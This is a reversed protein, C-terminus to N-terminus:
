MGPATYTQPQRQAKHRQRQFCHRLWRRQSFCQIVSSFSQKLQWVKNLHRNSTAHAPTALATTPKVVRLTASAVNLTNLDVSLGSTGMGVVSGIPTNVFNIRELAQFNTEQHSCFYKIVTIVVYNDASTDPYCATMCPFSILVPASRNLVPAPIFVLVM